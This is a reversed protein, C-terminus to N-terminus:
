MRYNYIIQNVFNVDDYAQTLMRDYSNKVAEALSVKKKIIGKAVPTSVISFLYLIRLKKLDKDTKEAEINSIMNTIINVCKHNNFESNFSDSLSIYNEIMERDNLKYKKSMDCFYPLYGLYEAFTKDNYSHNHSRIACHIRTCDKEKNNLYEPIFKVQSSLLQPCM